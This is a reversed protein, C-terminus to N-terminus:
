ESKPTIEADCTHHNENQHVNSTLNQNVEKKKSLNQRCEPALNFMHTNMCYAYAVSAKDKGTTEHNRKLFDFLM